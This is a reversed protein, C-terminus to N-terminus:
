AADPRAVAAGITTPLGFGIAGLGGSTLWQRSRNYKYFQAAWMQHQGVGTSIIVDRGTLEDLVQIAYQPPIAEGFTKFSVGFALLLDSKDVVYNAYVMGHMGLMRLLLD